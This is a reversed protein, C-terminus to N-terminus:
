SLTAPDFPGGNIYTLQCNSWPAPRPDSPFGGRKAQGAGKPACFDIGAMGLLRLRM